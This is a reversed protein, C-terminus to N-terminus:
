CDTSEHTGKARPTTRSILPGTARHSRATTPSFGRLKMKPGLLNDYIANPISDNATYSVTDQMFRGLAIREEM